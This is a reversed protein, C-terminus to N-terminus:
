EQLLLALPYILGLEGLRVRAMACLLLLDAFVVFVLIEEEIVVFLAVGVGICVPVVLVVLVVVVLELLVVIVGQTAVSLSRRDCSIHRARLVEVLVVQAFVLAPAGFAVLVVEVRVLANM